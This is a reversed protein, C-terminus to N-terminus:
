LNWAWPLLLLLFLVVSLIALANLKKKGMMNKYIRWGDLMPLPLLNFIALYFNILFSFAFLAYLFSALDPLPGPVKPLSKESLFVGIKGTGNATLSYSGNSTVVNVISGPKDASAVSELSSINSIPHGNWSVLVSGPAIANYAPSGPVTAAIVVHSAFLVPLLYYMVPIMLAFSIIALIFNSAVGAVSVRDQVEKGTKRIRKEDIDVFAGFPIIGFLLAGIYNNKIRNTRAVIGHLFEHVVVAVSIAALFALALYWPIGIFGFILPVAGPPPLSAGAAGHPLLLFAIIGYMTGLASVLLTGILFVSFGGIVSVALLAIALYYYYNSGAVAAGSAETKAIIQQNFLGMVAYQYQLAILQMFLIAAVGAFVAKKSVYGKFLFYSLIGFGMALGFEPIARWLRTNNKSLRDLMKLGKKTRPMVFGLGGPWGNISSIALGTFLLAVFALPIAYNGILGGSISLLVLLLLCAIFFILTLPVRLIGQLKLVDKDQQVM